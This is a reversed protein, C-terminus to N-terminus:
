KKLDKYFNEHVGLAILIRRQADWQYALLTEQKVMKFKYGWIDKLDGKKQVGAEPNKIIVRIAADLDEIQNKKLKKKKRFFLPTQLVIIESMTLNTRHQKRLM